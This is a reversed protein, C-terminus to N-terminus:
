VLHFLGCATCAIALSRRDGEPVVAFGPQQPCARLHASVHQGLAHGLGALSGPWHLTGGCAPCGVLGPESETLVARSCLPCLVGEGAVAALLSDLVADDERLFQECQELFWAEERTLAEREIEELTRLALEQETHQGAEGLAGGGGAPRAPAEGRTPGGDGGEDGGEEEGLHRLKNVYGDRRQKVQEKLRKRLADKLKPSVYKVKLFLENREM